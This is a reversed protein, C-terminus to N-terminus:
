SSFPVFRHKGIVEFRLRCDLSGGYVLGTRVTTHSASGTLPIQRPRRCSQTYAKNHVWFGDVKLCM